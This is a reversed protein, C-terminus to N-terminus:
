EALVNKGPAFKNQWKAYSNLVKQAEYTYWAYGDRREREEGALSYVIKSDQNCFLPRANKTRLLADM